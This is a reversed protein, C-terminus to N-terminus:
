SFDGFARVPATWWVLDHSRVRARLAALLPEIGTEPAVLWLVRRSVQGRVRERNSAHAFDRGHGAGHLLTYPQDPAFDGLADLVATELTDPFVLTLQLLTDSM